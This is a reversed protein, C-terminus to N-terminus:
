YYKFTNKTDVNCNKTMIHQTDTLIKDSFMLATNNIFGLNTYFGIHKTECILMYTNLTGNQRMMNHLMYSGLKKHRHNAHIIVSDIIFISKSIQRCLCYGVLGISKIFLQYHLDTARCTRHIFDMQSTIEYNWCTKKLECITKLADLSIKAHSCYNIYFLNFYQILSCIKKVNHETLNNYLPLRLLTRMIRECNPLKTYKYKKIYYDSSHLPIYHTTTKILNCSLYLQTDVLNTQTNFLLYFIHCNAGDYQQCVTFKPNVTCGLISYYLYWLKKRYRTIIEIDQLQPLLYAANIDSLLYSSGIDVWQYKAVDGNLFNARNTGKERIIKARDVYQEDNIVLLGGEGCNINKTEHFSFASIAGFSGLPQGKYYSHICQAADELLIIGHKTCIQLIKDMECGVGAYHVICIAKTRPTIYREINDANINPNDYSSDVLIVTAGYKEFANATSVYTYSPIIIEDGKSVNLLLAMMELAHTCSPVLLCNNFGYKTNLQMYIRKSFMGDGSQIGHTYTEEINQICRKDFYPQNFVIQKSQKNM